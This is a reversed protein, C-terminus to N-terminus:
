RKSWVKKEYDPFTVECTGPDIGEIRATGRDDLAGERLTGDPLRIRYRRYAAPIPPDGEEVLVIEIWTKEKALAIEELESPGEEEAATVPEVLAPEEPEEPNSGPGKAATGGANIKVVTGVITVGAQDIRIFGGPGKITVDDAGEGVFPESAAIHLKKDAKLAYRKEVQEHRDGYVMLSQKGDIQERRSGRVSQHVDGDVRERKHQGTIVDVDKDVWRKRYGHTEETEDNKVLKERDHLVTAFEDYKVLRKRDKQAQQWVLEKDALDEFMIENFGEASPSSDSKWASRTKHQPLRYPVQQVANYTRGVVVPQDPDGNVFTVFVEQGVRPLAVMGYGMGGWGQAVRMWCSSDDNLKGERDWHVQVRVRGFEDTHIEQGPPGVIVASQLGHIVPKPTRRPPEYPADAFVAQGTLTWEADPTGEFLTETVLLQRTSPLEAHPHADMSFISGPALDFTNAEFSVGRIGVRDGALAREAVDKGYRPDHRALGKDDAVPTGAPKGTEALFSGPKYHYQEYRDEPAEAKTAEAFLPFAPNRFDHDRFTAAGPRVFRSLRVHTVFEQEASESPSDVYPIPLGPRPSGTEIKDTLTLVSGADSEPFTFAIGAEELLRSVFAYDSEGYQVKFELKPYRGRDIQWAPEIRWPALVRDVIDPISLHQFIRNDTRQTLLWLPHVIEFFYTSLGKQGAAPQLAHVQEARRVVGTWTRLGMNRVHVYGSAARFTAPRAVVGRLDLSPDSARAFVRAAFLTSVAEHVSFRRVSLLSADGAATILELIAM